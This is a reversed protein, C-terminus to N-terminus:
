RLLMALLTLAAIGTLLLGGRIARRRRRDRRVARLTVERLEPPPAIRSPINAPRSVLDAKAYCSICDGAHQELARAKGEPLSGERWANLRQSLEECTM